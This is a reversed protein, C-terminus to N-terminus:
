LSRGVYRQKAARQLRMALPLQGPKSRKKKPQTQQWDKIWAYQKSLETVTMLQELVYVLPAETDPRWDATTEAASAATITTPQVLERLEPQITNVVGKEVLSDLTEKILAPSIKLLFNPLQTKSPAFRKDTVLKESHDRVSAGEVLQDFTVAHTDPALEMMLRMVMAEAPWSQAILDIVPDTSKM